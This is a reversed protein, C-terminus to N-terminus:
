STSESESPRHEAQSGTDRVAGLSAPPRYAVSPTPGPSWPELCGGCSFKKSFVGIIKLQESVELITPLFPGFLPWLGSSCRSKKRKPDKM